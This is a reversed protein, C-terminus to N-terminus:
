DDNDHAKKTRKKYTFSIRELREAGLPTELAVIFAIGSCSSVTLTFREPFSNGQTDGEAFATMDLINGSKDFAYLTHKQSATNNDGLTVSVKVVIEPSVFNIRFLNFFTGNIIINDQSGNSKIGFPLLDSDDTSFIIGHKEFQNTINTLNSFPLRGIPFNAIITTREQCFFNKEYTPAGNRWYTVNGYDDDAFVGSISYAGIIALMLFSSIAKIINM